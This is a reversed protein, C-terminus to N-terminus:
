NKAAEAGLSSASTIEGFLESLLTFPLMQMNKTMDKGFEVASGSEDMLNEWGLLGARLATEVSQRTWQVNVSQGDASPVLRAAANVEFLELSTLGRVRFRTPSPGDGQDSPEHWFPSLPSAARLAM